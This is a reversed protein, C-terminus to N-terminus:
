INSYRNERIIQYSKYLERIGDELSRKCQFGLNYIKQSSVIYDRKDLDEGIESEVFYFDPFISKIKNCLDLKSCNLADNGVNYVNDKMRDWNQLSFIFADVVDLIHIYNRMANAEFLVTYKKTAYEYVMTNVLLDTRHRPSSGFVTALRLSVANGAELISREAEAKLRGYLSIPNMPTEETCFKDRSSSGYGSNTNFFLVKQKKDRFKLMTRIAELNTSVAAIKDSLCAPFGTICSLPAIIDMDRMADEIIKEDRCDGRIVSFNPDSCCDLLSNQGYMFNDLVKVQYGQKLLEPVLRSGIYGAGGTILIREL